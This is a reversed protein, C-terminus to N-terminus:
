KSVELLGDCFGEWEEPIQGRGVTPGIVPIRDPKVPWNLPWMRAEDCSRDAKRNNCPMCATVINEWDREGGAKKPIVHDYTLQDYLFREGCYQCRFKDRAYVNVRSFRVGRKVSAVARRLRLVAPVRMTVSPSSVEEKYEVVVDVKGRYILTIAAEWPLIKHPFYWPTLLLTRM